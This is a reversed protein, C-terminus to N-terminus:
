IKQKITRKNRRKNLLQYKKRRKMLYIITLLMIISLCSIIIILKYNYKKILISTDVMLYIDKKYITDEDCKIVLEGIKDNLKDDKTIITKGIYEKTIKCNKNLYKKIINNFKYEITQGNILTIDTIKDDKDLIIRDEYNNFYYSYIEKADILHNIKNNYPANATVLLYNIGNYHSTSALCLGADYTFGTKSGDIFSVDYNYKLRTSKFTHMGNSTKYSDASFIEKFINNQLSYKLIIAVDAVSSYNDKNDIGTPNAFHTNKLNLNNSKDNMKKIFNDISGSTKIALAQAADAGSPLMLGYLLDRYTVTEGIKFGAVSANEEVLNVFMDSTLTIKDDINDINEIATICTMIKTMSAISIRDDPKVSYIVENNNLNYLIAHESKISLALVNIPFILVILIFLIKKM